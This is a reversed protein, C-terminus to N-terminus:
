IFSNVKKIRNNSKIILLIFFYFHDIDGCSLTAFWIAYVSKVALTELSVSDKVDKM